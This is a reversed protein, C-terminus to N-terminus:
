VSWVRLAEKAADKLIAVDGSAKNVVNLGQAVCLIFRAMARADKNRSLAGQSQARRLVEYIASEMQGFCEAIKRAIADGVEPCELSTNTNLCGRPLRPDSTRKIIAALMREIARRPDPDGLEALLPRAIKEAYRDLVALFFGQKDGFEAYLSGRNLGTTEVLDRISTGEYGRQWFTTM